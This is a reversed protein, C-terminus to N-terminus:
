HEQTIPRLTLENIAMHKPQALAFAIARAIDEDHLPNKTAIWEHAAPVARTLPTDVMGPEILTVRVGTGVTEKRLSHGLGVVGWKSAAYIPEGLHGVRGSVSALLVIHGDAQALMAPLVARVTYAVGLLNTELVARWREPEGDAMTGSDYLGANAVVFDIRGFRERCVAAVQELTALQRVDAVAPVADGRAALSATFAELPGAAIDSAVVRAGEGVLMRTVAAGIGSAAGTVIGSMGRIAQETM